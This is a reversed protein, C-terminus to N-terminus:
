NRGISLRMAHRRRAISEKIAEASDPCIAAFLASASFAASALCAYLPGILMVALWPGVESTELTGRAIVAGVAYPVIGLFLCVGSMAVCPYQLRRRMGLWVAAMLPFVLVGAKWNLFWLPRPLDPQLCCTWYADNFLIVHLEGSGLQDFQKPTLEGLSGCVMTIGGFLLVIGSLAMLLFVTAAIRM